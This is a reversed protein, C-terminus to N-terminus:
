GGRLLISHTNRRRPNDNLKSSGSVLDHQTNYDYNVELLVSQGELNQLGLSGSLPTGGSCCAQGHLFAPLGLTGIVFLVLIKNM